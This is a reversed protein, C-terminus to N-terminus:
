YLKFISRVWRWSLWTTEYLWSMKPFGHAAFLGPIWHSNWNELNISMLDGLKLIEQFGFDEQFCLKLIDKAEQPTPNLALRSLLARSLRLRDEQDDSLLPSLKMQDRFGEELGSEIAKFLSIQEPTEKFVQHMPPNFIPIVKEGKVRYGNVSGHKAHAFLEFMRVVPPVLLIMSRSPKERWEDTIYGTKRSRTSPPEGNRNLGLYYGHIEPLIARDSFIRVIADQLSPRWGIDVLCVRQAGLLGVQNLYRELLELQRTREIKVHTALEEDSLMAELREELHTKSQKQDLNVGYRAAIKEILEIDLGFGKFFPRAGGQTLVWGYHEVGDRSLDNISPLALTRRSLYLYSSKDLVNEAEQNEAMKRFIQYFRLGDRSIFFIQDYHREKVEMLVHSVFNNFIPAVVVRALHHLRETIASTREGSQGKALSLIEEDYRARYKNNDANQYLQRLHRIRKREKKNVYLVAKIGLRSPARYDAIPNDGLHIIENHGLGMEQIVKTFLAGSTKVLGYDSSCFGRELYDALGVSELLAGIAKAGLYMDSIYILNLNWSKLTRLANHAGPTPEIARKELDLEFALMKSILASQDGKLFTGILNALIDHLSAEPDLGLGQSQKRLSRTAETRILRVKHWHTSVGQLKLNNALRQCAKDIVTEPLCNRRILTDFVDFSVVKLEDQYRAVKALFPSFDSYIESM